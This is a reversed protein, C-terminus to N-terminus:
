DTNTASCCVVPFMGWTVSMNCVGIPLRWGAEHLQCVVEMGSWTVSLTCVNGASCRYGAEHLQCVIAIRDWTASLYGEGAEHLQCIVAIRGWTASLYSGGRRFQSVSYVELLCEAIQSLPNFSYVM